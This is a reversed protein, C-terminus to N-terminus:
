LAIAALAIRLGRYAIGLKARHFFAFPITFHHLPLAFIGTYVIRFSYRPNVVKSSGSTGGCSRRRSLADAQTLLPACRCPTHIIM